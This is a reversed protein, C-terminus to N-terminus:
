DLDRTLDSIHIVKLVLPNTFQYFVTLDINRLAFVADNEGSSLNRVALNSETPDALLLALLVELERSYSHFLAAYDFQAADTFYFDYGRPSSTM